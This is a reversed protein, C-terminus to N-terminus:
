AISGQFTYRWLWPASLERRFKQSRISLSSLQCLDTPHTTTTTRNQFTPMTCPTYAWYAKTVQMRVVSLGKENDYSFTPVIGKTSPGAQLKQSRQAGPGRFGRDKHRNALSARTENFGVPWLGRRLVTDVATFPFSMTKTFLSPESTSASWWTCLM